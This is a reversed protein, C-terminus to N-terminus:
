PYFNLKKKCMATSVSCGRIEFLLIPKFNTGLRGPTGKGLEGEEPDVSVWGEVSETSVVTFLHWKCNGFELSM